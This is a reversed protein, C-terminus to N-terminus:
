QQSHLWISLQNKGELRQYKVSQALSRIISWGFGGEPLDSHDVSLDPLKKNVQAAKSIPQGVDTLVLQTENRFQLGEVYITGHREAYAHEVINNCAEALVLEIDRIHNPPLGAARLSTVLTLLASRVGILTGPFSLRVVLQGTDAEARRQFQDTM